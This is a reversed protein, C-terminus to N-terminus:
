VLVKAFLAELALRNRLQAKLDGKEFEEEIKKKEAEPYIGKITELEKKLEADSIEIKEEKIIHQLALRIKIRREAEGKYKKQLDEHSTKSQELFKDFEMGKSEINKKMDEIIFHVEEEMLSNPIEVKVKKLLKEIYDNEQKQKSEQEKKAKINEEIMKKFEEVTQKKGTVKEILTEDLEPITAEELRMLEIKFTVKKNQFEKKGYDKPFTIDFDKKEGVKMGIVNDEFGPILSGEGLVVPHNTSKTGEVAKGKEFGEFNLEARDTKKAKRDVDKYTTSHKKMDDVVKEIDKKDVKAEEKKVKISKYDKVEVEPMIAVTATYNFPKETNVKIRPRAVVQLNEKVVADVYSKQIALEQTHLRVTKEGIHEELVNAPVHGPRFGKVKVDRSLNDCATKRHKAM